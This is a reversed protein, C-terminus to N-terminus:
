AGRPNMNLRRDARAVTIVTVSRAGAKKLARACADATSGTTLVDDVLLVRMGEVRKRARFAGALNARRQAPTLGTQSATNKVRALARIVPLRRAGAIRRALLDSQNFGRSFRRRWHLPAPVVADFAEDIPVAKLAMAGLADDLTSVQSYKFLHILERLTGEYAGYSCVFDFGRGGAACIACRGTEDLPFANAFPTRCSRCAYEAEFPAPM